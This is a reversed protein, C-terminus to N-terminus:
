VDSSNYRLWSRDRAAKSLLSNLIEMLYESMMQSLRDICPDELFRLQARKGEAIFLPLM